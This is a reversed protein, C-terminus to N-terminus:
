LYHSKGYRIHNFLKGSLTSPCVIRKVIACNVFVLPIVYSARAYGDPKKLNLTNNKTM